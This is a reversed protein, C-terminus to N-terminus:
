ATALGTFHGINKLFIKAHAAPQRQLPQKSMYASWTLKQVDQDKCISVFRERREDSSYWFRQMMALMRLTQANDKMFRKRASKLMQPNNRVLAEHAAEAALKGSVMAYYIGEGSSPAVIGAADGVVIVNRGNDWSDLQRLPIPAGERRLVKADALGARERLKAVANRLPFGRQASGAGVSITKGHPFVWGYFDPSIDSGYHVESHPSDDYGEPTELIEQHAAVQHLPQDGPIFRMAEARKTALSQKARRYLGQSAVTSNAGDAGVVISARAQHHPAGADTSDVYEVCVDNSNEQLDVFSGKRVTVGTHANARERLWPDFTGRDIMGIYGGEFPMVVQARSPAVVRAEKITASLLEAPIGFDEILRPPIAGACPKSGMDPDLLLVSRGQRGLEEAATSGAPGGGVVVVDYHQPKQFRTQMNLASAGM